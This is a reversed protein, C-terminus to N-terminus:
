KRRTRSAEQGVDLHRCPPNRRPRREKDQLCGDEEQVKQVQTRIEGERLSLLRIPNPGARYPRMNIVENFVVDGFVTM